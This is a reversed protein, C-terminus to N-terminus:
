GKIKKNTTTLPENDSKLIEILHKDTIMKQRNTLYEEKLYGALKDKAYQSEKFKINKYNIDSLILGCAAAPQLRIYQRLEKPQLLEEIDDVTLEHYGVHLLAKVMKRVMNWLFSKGEITFVLVDDVCKLDVHTIERNPNKENRKSFNRFNHEGIFLNIAERMADIDISEGYFPDIPQIYTYTRTQPFRVKFSYPVRAEAVIKIDDTLLGNLKNIYIEEDTIFSIVNATSHVGKDTRGAVSYHAKWTDEIIGTEKFVKLLEGEVTRYDPQRQYGHFKSGIYAIKLAVRRM